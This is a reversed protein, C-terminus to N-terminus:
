ADSKIAAKMAPSLDWGALEDADEEEEPAGEVGRRELVVANIEFRRRRCPGLYGKAAVHPRARDVVAVFKLFLEKATVPKACFETIGADRAAMVKSRESHATLMIVPVYRFPGPDRRIMRCLEIGNIMPMNYDIIALDVTENRLKDIADLADKAELCRPIGFGRLITKIIYRMHPNDDVVLAIVNSLRSM